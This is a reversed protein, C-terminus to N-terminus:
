NDTEIIIQDPLFGNPNTGPEDYSYLHGLYTKNADL